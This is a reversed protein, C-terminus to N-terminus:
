AVGCIRRHSYCAVTFSDRSDPQLVTSAEKPKKLDVKVEAPKQLWTVYVAIM